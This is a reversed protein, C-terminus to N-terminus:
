PRQYGTLVLGAARAGGRRRRRRARGRATSPGAQGATGRM